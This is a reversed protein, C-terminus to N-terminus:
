GPLGKLVLRLIDLKKNKIEVPEIHELHLIDFNKTIDMPEYLVESITTIIPGSTITSNILDNLAPRKDFGNLFIVHNGNEVATHVITCEMGNNLTAKAGANFGVTDGVLVKFTMPATIRGPVSDKIGSVLGVKRYKFEAPVEAITQEGPIQQSLIMVGDANLEKILNSGHGFYPAIIARAEAELGDGTIIVTAHTYGRGGDVVRIAKLQGGQIVPTARAGTGDGIIEITARSYGSGFVSVDYADISGGIANHETQNQISNIHVVRNIPLYEDTVFNHIDRNSLTYLYKWVYGDSYSKPKFTVHDPEVITNSGNANWLCKYVKYQSTVVYCLVSSDRDDYQPFVVSKAWNIRKYCLAVDLSSAKNLILADKLFSPEIHEAPDIADPQSENSWASAKGFYFYLTNAHEKIYDHLAKAM